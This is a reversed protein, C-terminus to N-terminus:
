SRLYFIVTSRFSFRDRNMLAACLVHAASRLMVRVGTLATDRRVADRMIALRDIQYIMTKSFLSEFARGGRM